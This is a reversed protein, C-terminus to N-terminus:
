EAVEECAAQCGADQPVDNSRHTDGDCKLWFCLAQDSLCQAETPLGQRFREVVGDQLPEGVEIGACVIFREHGVTRGHTQQRAIIWGVEITEIVIELRLSKNFQCMRIFSSRALPSRASAQSETQAPEFEKKSLTVQAQPLAGIPAVGPMKTVRKTGNEAINGLANCYGALSSSDGMGIAIYPFQANTTKQEQRRKPAPNVVGADIGDTPTCGVNM